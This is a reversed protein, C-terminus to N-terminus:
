ILMEFSHSWSTILCVARQTQKAHLVKHILVKAFVFLLYYCHQVNQKDRSSGVYYKIIFHNMRNILGMKEVLVSNFFVITFTLTTLKTFLM